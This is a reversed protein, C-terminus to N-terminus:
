NKVLRKTISTNNTVFKVLYVGSKWQSSDFKTVSQNLTKKDVLQGLVNYVEMRVPANTASLNVTFYNNVPNPKILISDLDLAPPLVATDATQAFTLSSSLFFLAFLFHLTIKRM